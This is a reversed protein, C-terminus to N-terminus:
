NEKKIVLLDEYWQSPYSIFEYFNFISSKVKIAYNGDNYFFVVLSLTLTLILASINKNFNFKKLFNM